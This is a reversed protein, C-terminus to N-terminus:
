KFLDFISVKTEEPFSNKILNMILLRLFKNKAINVYFSELEKVWEFDKSSSALLFDSCCQFVESSKQISIPIIKRLEKIYEMAQDIKGNIAIILISFFIYELNEKVELNKLFFRRGFFEAEPFLSLNVLLKFLNTQIEDFHLFNPYNLFEEYHEKVLNICDPDQNNALFDTLGIFFSNTSHPFKNDSLCETLFNFIPILGNNIDKHKKVHHLYHQIIKESEHTLSHDELFPLISKFNNEIEEYSSNEIDRLLGSNFERIGQYFNGSQFSLISKQVFKNTPNLSLACVM